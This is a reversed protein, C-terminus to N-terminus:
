ERIAGTLGLSYARRIAKLVYSSPIEASYNERIIQSHKPAGHEELVDALLHRAEQETM